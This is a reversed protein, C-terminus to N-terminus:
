HYPLESYIYYLIYTFMHTNCEFFKSQLLLQVILFSHIFTYHALYELSFMTSDSTRSDGEDVTKSETTKSVQLCGCDLFVLHFIGAIFLEWTKLRTGNHHVHHFRVCVVEICHIRDMRCKTAMTSIGDFTMTDHHKHEIVTNKKNTTGFHFLM